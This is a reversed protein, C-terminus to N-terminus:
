LMYGLYVGIMKNHSQDDDFAFRTLGLSLRIDMTVAHKGVPQVLGVGLIAGFEAKHTNDQLDTTVDTGNNDIVDKANVLYSVYPGANVHVRMNTHYTKGFSYDYLLPISVYDFKETLNDSHNGKQDYTLETRLSMNDNIDYSGALGAHLGTRINGNDYYEAIGSQVAFNSGATIGYHFNQASLSGAFTMLLAMLVLNLNVKKM